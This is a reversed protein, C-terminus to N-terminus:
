CWVINEIHKDLSDAGHPCTPVEHTKNATMDLVSTTCLLHETFIEQIILNTGHPKWPLGSIERQRERQRFSQTGEEEARCGRSDAM